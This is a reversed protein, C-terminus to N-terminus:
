VEEEDRNEPEVKRGNTGDTLTRVSPSNFSGIKQHTKLYGFVEEGQIACVLRPLFKTDADHIDLGIRDM